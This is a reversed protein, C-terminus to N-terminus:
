GLFRFYAYFYKPYFFITQLECIYGRFAFCPIVGRKETINKKLAFILKSIIHNETINATIRYKGSNTQDASKM